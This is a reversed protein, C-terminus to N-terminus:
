SSKDGDHFVRSNGKKMLTPGGKSDDIVIIARKLNKVKEDEITGSYMVGLVVSNSGVTTTSRGYVTFNNGSGSIVASESEDREGSALGVFRISFDEENFYSFTVNYTVFATNSPVDGTINSRLMLNPIMFYTGTVDPPTNGPFVDMGLDKM